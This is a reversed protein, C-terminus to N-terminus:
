LPKLMLVWDGGHPSGPYPVVPRAHTGRYGLQEYLRRAGRNQSAVILSMQRCGAERASGETDKMLATAVGQGRFRADTAIANIYWSGPAEAELQVLPRVIDPYESLADLDYPDPQRYAIVMGMLEGSDDLCVRANHYSFGGEERAARRAGVDLPSEGAEALASWLYEPIGEGALNILFALERAQTQEAATIKM